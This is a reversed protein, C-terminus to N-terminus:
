ALVMEKEFEVFFTSGEGPKTECWVKGNMAEVYKKVISLGLGNSSEGCTPKPTLKTNEHFLKKLENKNFGPGEDAVSIRCTDNNEHTRIRIITNM